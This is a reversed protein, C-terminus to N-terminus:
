RGNKVGKVFGLASTNDAKRGQSTFVVKIAEPKETSWKQKLKIGEDALENAILFRVVQAVSLGFHNKAHETLANKMETSLRIKLTEDKEM